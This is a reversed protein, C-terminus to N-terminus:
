WRVAIKATPAFPIKYGLWCPGRGYRDYIEEESTRASMAVSALDDYMREILNTPRIPM